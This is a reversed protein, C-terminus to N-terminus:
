WGFSWRKILVFGIKPGPKNRKIFYGAVAPYKKILGPGLPGNMDPVNLVKLDVCTVIDGIRAKALLLSLQVLTCPHYLSRFLMSHHSHLSCVITPSRAFCCSLLSRYRVLLISCVGLLSCLSRAFTTRLAKARLSSM